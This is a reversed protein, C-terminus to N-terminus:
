PNARAQSTINSPATGLGSSRRNQNLQRAQSVFAKMAEEQSVLRKEHDQLKETGEKAFDVFTDGVDASKAAASASQDVIKKIADERQDDTIGNKNMDRASQRRDDKYSKELAAKNKRFEEKSDRSDLGKEDSTGFQRELEQRIKENDDKERRKMEEVIAKRKINQDTLKKNIKEALDVFPDKGTSDGGAALSSNGTIDFDSEITGLFNTAGAYASSNKKGATPATGEGYKNSQDTSETPSSPSQPQPPNAEQQQKGKIKALIEDEQKKKADAAAQEKKQREDIAKSEADRRAQINQLEAEANATTADHILKLEATKKDFAEREKERNMEIAKLRDAEDKEELTKRKDILMTVETSYQKQLELLKENKAKIEDATIAEQASAEEITSRIQKLRADVSNVTNLDAIRLKVEVENKHQDLPEFLAKLQDALEKTKGAMETISPIVGDIGQHLNEFDKDNKELADTLEKSPSIFWLIAQGIGYIAAAVAAATIIVPGMAATLAVFGARLGALTVTGIAKGLKLLGETLEKAQFAFTAIGGLGLLALIKQLGEFGEKARDAKERTEKNAQELEKAKAAAEHEAAALAKAKKTADDMSASFENTEKTAQDVEKGLSDTTKTAKELGAAANVGEQGVEKLSEAAKDVADATKKLGDPTGGDDFKMKFDATM